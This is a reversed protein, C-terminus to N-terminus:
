TSLLLFEMREHSLIVFAGAEDLSIGYSEGYFGAMDPDLVFPIGQFTEHLDDEKM